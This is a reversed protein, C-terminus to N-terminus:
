HKGQGVDSLARRVEPMLERTRDTAGRSTFVVAYGRDRGAATAAAKLDDIISARLIRASEGVPLAKQGAPLPPAAAPVTPHEMRESMKQREAEVEPDPPIAGPAPVDVNAAPLQVHAAASLQEREMARLLERAHAKAQDREAEAERILHEPVPVTIQRPPQLAQRLRQIGAQRLDQLEQEAVAYLERRRRLQAPTYFFRDEPRERLAQLQATLTQEREAQRTAAQLDQAPDHTEVTQRMAAYKRRLEAIKAEFSEQARDPEAQRRLAYSERIEAQTRAVDPERDVPAVAEPAAPVPLAEAPPTEWAPGDKAARSSPGPQVKAEAELAHLQPAAPHLELYRNVDVYAPQPTEAAGADM